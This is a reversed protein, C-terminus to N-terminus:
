ALDIDVHAGGEDGVPQSGQATPPRCRDLDV